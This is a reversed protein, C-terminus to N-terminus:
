EYSYVEVSMSFSWLDRSGMSMPASPQARMIYSADDTLEPRWAIFGPKDELSQIVGNKGDLNARVWSYTLNMWQYDELLITRKISRGLLEGSRSMNAIIETSRNMRAPTFGAYFPREFTLPDGVWLIGIEPLVGRDVTVRWRDSTIESFFFMIASDNDPSVSGISTWTDDGNSDHEFTVRAGAMGLTHAGIAFCTGGQALFTDLRLTASSLHTYARRVLITNDTSGAYSVTESGNSLLLEIVGTGAAATFRISCLLSGDEQEIIQGVAGGAATGVSKDRLDFFCSFTSTGDNARVQIEPVTRREVKFAVIWEAATFTFAQSLDHEGTDTTEVITKEDSQITVNTATWAAADFATEDVAQNEFPVWRDVTLGNDVLQGNGTVAEASPTITKIEFKNGVHLLRAHKGQAWTYGAETAITM